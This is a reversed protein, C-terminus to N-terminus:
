VPAADPTLDDVLQAQAKLEAVADVLAQTVTGGSGGGAAIIAELESVKDLTASSELGINVLQDKVLGLDAVIEAETAMIMELKQNISRLTRRMHQFELIAVRAWLTFKM